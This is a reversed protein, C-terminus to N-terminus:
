STYSRQAVASSVHSRSVRRARLVLAFQRIGVGGLYGIQLAVIAVVGAEATTWAGQRYTWSVSLPILVTLLSLPVLIMVRFRQGLIIGVLVIITTVPLM